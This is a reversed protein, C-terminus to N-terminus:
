DKYWDEAEQLQLTLKNHINALHTALEEAAHSGVNKVQFLDAQPHRGYNAFFPTQKTSSHM